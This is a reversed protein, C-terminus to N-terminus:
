GISAWQLIAKTLAESVPTGGGPGIIVFEMHPLDPLAGDAAVRALGTPLLRLSHPLIGLGARAAATLGSLSASTFAVRWTHRSADLTTIAMARTVSPPPYLLLPVPANAAHLYDPRAIWM